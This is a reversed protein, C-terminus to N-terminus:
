YSISFTTFSHVPERWKVSVADVRALTPGAHLKEILKTLADEEGQAIVQVTGDSLNKVAGVLELGRAARATFDRFMVMQVRGRIICEIEKQM